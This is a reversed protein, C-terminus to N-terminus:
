AKSKKTPGAPSSCAVLGTHAPPCLVRDNIQQMKTPYQDRENRETSIGFPSM